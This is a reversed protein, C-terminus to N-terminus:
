NKKATKRAEKEADAEREHESVAIISVRELWRPDEKNIEVEAYFDTIDHDILLYPDEEREPDVFCHRLEHRIIRIRDEEDIAEYTLKDLFMVYDFGEPHLKSETFFKILNNPKLMQGLVMRGRSNKKKTNFLVKMNVGRLEPFYQERVQAVLNETQSPVEEYSM